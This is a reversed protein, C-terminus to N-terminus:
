RPRRPMRSALVDAARRDSEPVWASYVRLTTAGGGGHGLRGAVTRPDVGAAILETASYHRLGHFHTHFPLKKAMRNYHQTLTDPLLPTSGDPAPSFVYASPQLPVGLLGANNECRVRFERLIEATTEDLSLRRRQHTKTDKEWTHGGIQGLSRGFTVSRADLDLHRWRLAVLEGRRAGSAMALWVLVGWDPDKWAEALIAAAQDATPPRPDPPPVRPPEILSIPNVAIWEWRVARNLAMKLVSHIVRVSGDSLPVCEHRRCRRACAECATPRPPRCPKGVHEDCVHEAESRHEVFRRGCCHDRCTRLRAYLSDIAEANLRGVPLTGITPRLHKDIKGVYGARTTREVKIVELWRDFLDNMTQGTRPNRREAVQHLLKTRVQEAARQTERASGRVSVVESLYHRKKTVPDYGAFVRVRLAGSPLEEVVGRARRPGGVAAAMTRAYKSKAGRKIDHRFILAQRV